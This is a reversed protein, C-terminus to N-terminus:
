VVTWRSGANVTVIVGAPTVVPGGSVSNYNAPLTYSAPITSSNLDMGHTSATNFASLQGTGPNYTYETSAVYATTLSGTTISSYLPYRTANTTTDDAVTIGGGGVAWSLVGTGDTTLVYGATGANPPLTMTWPTATLSSTLTTVNATGALFLIKSLTGDVKIM